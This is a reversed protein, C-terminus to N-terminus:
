QWIGALYQRIIELARERTAEYPERIFAGSANKHGGGGLLAAMASVNNDGRSRFGIRTYGEPTEYFLVSVDVGKISRMESSLGEPEAEDDGTSRMMEQTVENWVFRGDFEYKLTSLVLASIKVTAPSRSDWVKEAILAPNAGHAVLDSAVRFTMEKTNGFRFGGTDTMIGTYLCTAIQPSVRVPIARLLLYIMEAAASAAGDVWNVTGFRTNSIHHDIVAFLGSTQFGTHVREPDSTDVCLTADFPGEPLTTEIRDFLPLYSFFDPVPGFTYFRVDKGLDLLGQMLGLCSGLCDGDPRLHGIILFTQNERIVRIVEDMEALLEIAGPAHAKM